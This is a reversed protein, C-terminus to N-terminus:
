YFCKFSSERNSGTLLWMDICYYFVFILLWTAINQCGKVVNNQELLSHLITNIKQKNKKLCLGGHHLVFLLHHHPFPPNPSATPFPLETAGCRQTGM